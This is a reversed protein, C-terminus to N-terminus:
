DFAVVDLEILDGSANVGDPTCKISRISSPGILLPKPSSCDISNEDNLASYEDSGPASAEFTLTGATITEGIGKQSGLSLQVNKGSLLGVNDPYNVTDILTEGTSNILIKM